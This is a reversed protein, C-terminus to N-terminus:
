AITDHHIIIILKLQVALHISLVYSMIMIDHGSKYGSDHDYSKFWSVDHMCMCLVHVHVICQGSLVQSVWILSLYSMTWSHCVVHRRLQM